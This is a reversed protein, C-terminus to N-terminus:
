GRLAARVLISLGLPVVTGVVAVAGAVSVPDVGLGVALVVPLLLSWSGFVLIGVAPIGVLFTVVLLLCAGVVANIPLPFAPEVTAWLMVPYLVFAAALLLLSEGSQFPRSGLRSADAGFVGSAGDYGARWQGADVHDRGTRGASARDTRAARGPGDGSGTARGAGGGGRTAHGPEGGAGTEGRRGGGTAATSHEFGDERDGTRGAAPGEEAPRAADVDSRDAEVFGDHYAVYDAHGLRDYRAREREDALVEKAEILAQTRAVADPHDSVDPHTEVLRERYADEIDATTADRPVGLRDYYTESM